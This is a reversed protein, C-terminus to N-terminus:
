ISFCEPNSGDSRGCSSSSSGSDLEPTKEPNAARWAAAAAARAEVEYGYEPGADVGCGDMKGILSLYEDKEAGILRALPRDLEKHQHVSVGANM